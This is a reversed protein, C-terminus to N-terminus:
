LDHHFSENAGRVAKPPSSGRRPSCSEKATSSPDFLIAAARLSM